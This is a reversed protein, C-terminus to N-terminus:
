EGIGDFTFILAALPLLANLDSILAPTFINTDGLLNVTGRARGAIVIPACLTSGYGIKGLESSEPIYVAMEDLTNGIIPLKEGYIRRCWPGDDIPDFGTTPFYKPDSTGVRRTIKESPFAALWTVARVGPLALFLANLAAITQNPGAALAIAITKATSPDLPTM